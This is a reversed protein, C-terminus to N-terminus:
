IDLILTIAESESRIYNRAVTMYTRITPGTYRLRQGIETTSYGEASLILAKIGVKVAKKEANDCMERLASFIGTTPDGGGTYTESSDDPLPDLGWVTKRGIQACTSLMANSIVRYAYNGFPVGRSSDYSIIARCLALRGDQLIDDAYALLSDTKVLDHYARYVLRENDAYM